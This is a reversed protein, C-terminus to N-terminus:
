RRALPQPGEEDGTVILSVTGAAAPVAAVAAVFAAIAGKMDVAGRGRLLGGCITPAFADGSWGDGAPVVDLHGAFAIHAGGSGRTALLNDVPGDPAAGDTTRTVDFGLRTLERELVDFVAGRAPSVSPVAILRCALDVVDVPSLSAMVGAYRLRDARSLRM